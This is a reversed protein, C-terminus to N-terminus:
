LGPRSPRRVVSSAPLAYSAVRGENPTVWVRHLLENENIWLDLNVQSEDIGQHATVFGCGYTEHGTPDEELSKTVTERAALWLRPAVREGEISIAYGKLHLGGITWLEQFRISRPRYPRPTM